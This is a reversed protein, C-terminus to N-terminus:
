RRVRRIQDPPNTVYLTIHHTINIFKLLDPFTNQVTILAIGVDADINGKLLRLQMQVINWHRDCADIPADKLHLFIGGPLWHAMRQLVRINQGVINLNHINSFQNQAMSSGLYLTDSTYEM